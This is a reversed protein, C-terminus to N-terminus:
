SIEPKRRGHKGRQTPSEATGCHQGLAELSTQAAGELIRAADDRTSDRQAMILRIDGISTVLSRPSYANALTVRAIITTLGDELSVLRDVASSQMPRLM